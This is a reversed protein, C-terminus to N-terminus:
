KGKRGTGRVRRHRIEGRRVDQEKESEGPRRYTEDGGKGDKHRDSIHRNELTEDKGM